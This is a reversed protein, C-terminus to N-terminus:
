DKMLISLNQARFSFCNWCHVSAGHNRLLQSPFAARATFSHAPTPDKQVCINPLTAVDYLHILAPDIDGVGQYTSKQNTISFANCAASLTYGAYQQTHPREHCHAVRVPQLTRRRLDTPLGNQHDNPQGRIKRLIDRLGTTPVHDNGLGRQPVCRRPESTLPFSTLHLWLIAVLSKKQFCLAAAQSSLALTSFIRTGGASM